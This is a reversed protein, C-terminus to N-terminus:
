NFMAVSVQGELFLVVTANRCGATVRFKMCIWPPFFPPSLCLVVEGPGQSLLLTVLLLDTTPSRAVTWIYSIPCIFVKSNLQIVNNVVNKRLQSDNEEKQIEFNQEGFTWALNEMAGRRCFVEWPEGDPQGVMMLAGVYDRYPCASCPVM